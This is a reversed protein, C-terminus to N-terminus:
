ECRRKVDMPRYGFETKFKRSFNPYDSFGSMLSITKFSITTQQILFRAKKLRESTYFQYISTKFLLKFRLKLKHENTGFIRSLEHMSPLPTDLHDLIYDYVNQIMKVDSSRGDGRRSRTLDDKLATEEIATAVSSIIIKSCPALRYISCFAPLLLKNEGVYVLELTKHYNPELLLEETVEEWLVLSEESLLSSFAKDLLFDPIYGLVTSSSNYGKITFDEDLILTAQILQKNNSHPNIFGAHFVAGKLEEAVMNMTIVLGELEDNQGTRQIQGAFNGSAMELLMKSMSRIRSQNVEQHM